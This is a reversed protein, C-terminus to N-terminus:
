LRQLTVRMAGADNEALKGCNLPNSHHVLKFVAGPLNQLFLPLFEAANLDSREQPLSQLKRDMVALIEYDCSCKQRCCM